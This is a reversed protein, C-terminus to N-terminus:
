QNVFPLLVQVGQQYPGGDQWSQYSALFPTLANFYNRSGYINQNILGFTNFRLQEAVIIGLIDNLYYSPDYVRAVLQVQQDVGNRTRVVNYPQGNM